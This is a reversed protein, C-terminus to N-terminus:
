GLVKKNQSFVAKIANEQRRYMLREFREKISLPRVSLVKDDEIVLAHLANGVKFTGIEGFYPSAATTGLYFAEEVTLFKDQGDMIQRAKSARIAATVNDFM